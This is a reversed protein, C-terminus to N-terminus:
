PHRPEVSKIQLGLEDLQAADVPSPADMMLDQHSQTKPFAIVDRISDSGTLMMVMRDIGLAIGGHPPVGYEFADLLFGFRERTSALDLGLIGFIREQVERRYIRLSGGGLEFGNLVLDYAHARVRSLDGPLDSGLLEADEEMPRTFPHHASTLAGKDDEEFLTMPHIWAFRWAASDILGRRSGLENRLLGMITAARRPRDAVLLVLDTDGAGTRDRISELEALSLASQLPGPLWALGQGGAGRTMAALEELQRRSLDTGGPVALARAVGARELAAALVRAKTQGLLDTVDSIELQFRLDPKDTGYKLLSEGLSIRPFPPKLEIGLMQQWLRVFLEEILQFIEDEACFSLEVDLQTFELQRDARLDEDRLCRAIQYYRGLGAVMMLQKLTQPSQPLAFFSGRHMRSPVLFDRAGEPTSKILLPTEVEVFDQEDMYTHIIKNVQHRAQLIRLMRPRRLDLYRYKLRLSEDVHIEDSIPFPPTKSRSLIEIEDGLIEVKGTSLRANESGSPRRQVTGAVRVVYENRVQGAMGHAAPASQPNFTVQVTGWRDRVDLFTLGGHDRRRDVWGNIEVRQGLHELGVAGCRSTLKM